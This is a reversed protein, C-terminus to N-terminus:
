TLSPPARTSCDSFHRGHLKIDFRDALAESAKPPMCSVADRHPAAFSSSLFIALCFPCHLPDHHHDSDEADKSLASSGVSPVHESLCHELGPPVIAHESVLHLYQVFPLSLQVTIAFLCVLLGLPRVREGSNVGCKKGPSKIPGFQSFILTWQERRQVHWNTCPQISCYYCLFKLLSHGFREM